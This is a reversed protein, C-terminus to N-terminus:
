AIVDDYIRDLWAYLETLQDETIEEDKYFSLIYDEVDFKSKGHMNCLIYSKIKKSSM